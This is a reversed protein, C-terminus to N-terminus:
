EERRALKSSNDDIDHHNAARKRGEYRTSEETILHIERLIDELKKSGWINPNAEYNRREANTFLKYIATGQWESYNWGLLVALETSKYRKTEKTTPHKLIIQSKRVNMEPVPIHCELCYNRIKKRLFLSLNELDTVHMTRGRNIRINAGTNRNYEMLNRRGHELFHDWFISTMNAKVETRDGGGGITKIWQLPYPDKPNVYKLVESVVKNVQEKASLGPVHPMNIIIEKSLVSRNVLEQERSLRTKQDTNTQWFGPRVDMSTSQMNNSDMVTAPYICQYCKDSYWKNKLTNCTHLLFPTALQRINDAQSNLLEFCKDMEKQTSCAVFCDDVYRCYLVPRRDLVPKEIKSMYAIALVPALRQGM